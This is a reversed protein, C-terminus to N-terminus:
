GNHAEMIEFLASVQTLCAKTSVLTEIDVGAIEAVERYELVMGMFNELFNQNQQAWESAIPLLKNFQENM